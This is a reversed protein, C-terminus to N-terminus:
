VEPPSGRRWVRGGEMGRGALLAQLRQIKELEEAVEDEPKSPKIAAARSIQMALWEGDQGRYIGEGVTLPRWRVRRIRIASRRDYTAVARITQIEAVPVRRTRAFLGSTYTLM